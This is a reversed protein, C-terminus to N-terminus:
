LWHKVLVKRKVANTYGEVFKYQIPYEHREVKIKKAHAAIFNKHKTSAQNIMITSPTTTGSQSQSVRTINSKTGFIGQGSPTFFKKNSFKKKRQSQNQSQRKRDSMLPTAIKNPTVPTLSSFIEGDASLSNARDNDGGNMDLLADYKEVSSENRRMIELEIQHSINRRLTNSYYLYVRNYNSYNNNSNKNNNYNSNGNSSNNNNYKKFYGGIGKQRKQAREETILTESSIIAVQEICPRLKWDIRHAAYNNNYSDNNNNNGNNGNNNNNNYFRNYGYKYVSTAYYNLGCDIMTNTLSQLKRKEFGQCNGLNNISQINFSPHIIHLLLPILELVCTSPNFYRSLITAYKLVSVNSDSSGGNMWDDGNPNNGNGNANQGNNRNNKRNKNENKNKGNEIKNKGIQKDISNRYEKIFMADPHLFTKIINLKENFEVNLIRYFKNPYTYRKFPSDVSVLNYINVFFYSVYGWLMFQQRSAVQQNFVDINSMTDSTLTALKCMEDSTGGFGNSIWNEYIGEFILGKDLGGSNIISLIEKWRSQRQSDESELMKYEFFGKRNSIVKQKKDKKLIKNWIDFLQHTSDKRGIPIQELLSITLKNSVRHSNGVKNKFFQLTHLCSRIDCQTLDALYLLTRMDCHLYEKRCIELLRQCLSRKNIPKFDFIKAIKRLPRLARSYKNNCICIVPRNIIDSKNKHKSINKGKLKMDWLKNSMEVLNVIIEVATKGSAAKQRIKKGGGNKDKDKGSKRLTVGDIEDIIILPPRRELDDINDEINGFISKSYFDHANQRKHKTFMPKMTVTNVILERLTAGDRDDSANIEFPKYGCHRAIIHALTTKGTGPPGCLLIVGFEPRQYKQKIESNRIDFKKKAKKAKGFRPMSSIFQTVKKNQNKNKNNGNNNGHQSLMNNHQRNLQQKKHKEQQQKTARRYKHGFVIYDWQKVWKLVERNIMESSLLDLFSKPSYKDVWLTQLDTIDNVIGKNKNKKNKNKRNENKKGRSKLGSGLGNDNSIDDNDDNLQNSLQNLNENLADLKEKSERIAKDIREREIEGLMKEVRDFTDYYDNNNNRLERSKKKLRLEFSTISDGYIYKKEGENSTIEFSEDGTFSPIDHLYVIDEIKNDNEIININDNGELGMDGIGFNGLNGLGGLGGFNDFDEFNGFDDFNDFSQQVNLVGNSNRNNNRNNNRNSNINISSNISQNEFVQSTRQRKNRPQEFDNLKRKRSSNEQRIGNNNSNNNNNNNNDNKGSDNRNSNNNNNNGNNNDNNGSNHDNLLNAERLIQNIENQEIDDIMNAFENENEKNLIHAIETNNSNNENKNPNKNQKKNKNKNKNKNTYKSYEQYIDIENLDIDVDSSGMGDSIPSDYLNIERTRRNISMPNNSWEGGATTAINTVDNNTKNMRSFPGYEREMEQIVQDDDFLENEDAM